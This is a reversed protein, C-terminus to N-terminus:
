LTQGDNSKRMCIRSRVPRAVPPSVGFMSAHEKLKESDVREPNIGLTKEGLMCFIEPTARMASKIQSVSIISLFFM